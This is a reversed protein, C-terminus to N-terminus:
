SNNNVISKRKLIYYFKQDIPRHGQWVIHWKPNQLISENSNQNSIVAVDCINYDLNSFGPILNIDAYYYWLAIQLSHAENTAICSTQKVDLYKISDNVIYEFSLISNFWPLWLSLFLVLIYTVGSAWNTIVERGRIHKRTILLIWIITFLVALSLNWINFKYHYNQSFQLMFEIIPLHITNFFKRLIDFNIIFYLMWLITAAFSTIFLSFWNFLSIITIRISDIEVSALLVAPILIPFLEGEINNDNVFLSFSLLLISLLISVQLVKDHLLTSYRKYITWAILFWSPLIYWSLFITISLIKALFNKYSFDAIIATYKSVWQLFFENNVSKLDYIYLLFIISFLIIGIMTTALYNKNRWSSDLIPLILLNLIAIVLFECTFNISMFLLGIFLIGGSIGPLDNYLQLAYIYCCFGLLIIINPSLQYANNIFGISAILLLICNRGNKYASLKSGIKGVLIIVSLILCGNTIRITNAIAVKDHINFLKVISAHIWFYFPQIELYPVNSIYPVLWSHNSIIGKVIAFVFPEYPEWPVHFFIAGLLWSSIILLIVLPNDKNKSKSKKDYTLM